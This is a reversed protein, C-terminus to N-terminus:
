QEQTQLDGREAGRGPLNQTAILQWMGAVPVYPGIIMLGRPLSIEQLGNNQPFHCPFIKFHWCASRTQPNNKFVATRLFLLPRDSQGETLLTKLTLHRQERRRRESVGPSDLTAKLFM